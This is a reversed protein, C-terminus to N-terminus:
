ILERADEAFRLTNRELDFSTGPGSFPVGPSAESMAEHFDRWEELYDDYGWEAPRYEHRRYLDPENGIEWAMLSSGLRDAVYAAEDAARTPTNRALNVGYIVQSQTAEVFEALADIQEPLIPTLEGVEGNWSSRDVANAGIRLVPPG